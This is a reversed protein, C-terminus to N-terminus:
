LQGSQAAAGARLQEIMQLVEDVKDAAEDECHEAASRAATAAVYAGYTKDLLALADHHTSAMERASQKRCRLEEEDIKDAFYDDIAAQVLQSTYQEIIRDCVYRAKIVRRELVAKFQDCAQDSAPEFGRNRGEAVRQARAHSVTNRSAGFMAAGSDDTAWTFGSAAPAERTPRRGAPAPTRVNERVPAERVGQARPHALANRSGFMAAGDDDTAWSLSNGDTPTAVGRIPSCMRVPPLRPTGAARLLLALTSHALLVAVM